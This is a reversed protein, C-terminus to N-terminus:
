DFLAGQLAHIRINRYGRQDSGSAGPINHSPSVYHIEQMLDPLKARFSSDKIPTWKKARCFEAYARQIDDTTAHGTQEKTVYLELFHRLSESEYLLDNVRTQQTQTLQLQGHAQMEARLQQAGEIAWRLIGPGEEEILINDFNPIRKAEKIREIKFPVLRRKWADRDNQMRIIPRSNGTIVVHFTGPVKFLSNSGKLEADLLDGGTIAKLSQANDDDLFSPPIDPASLVRSGILRGIEFRSDVHRLRLGGINEEGLIGACVNTLTSKGTAAEGYILTVVQPLNVPLLFGGMVKQFLDIDEGGLMGGLLDQIFRPCAAVPDYAIPIQNRSYYEPGFPLLQSTGLDFMGNKVHIILPFQPEFADVKEAISRLRGVSCRLFNDTVKQRISDAIEHGEYSEAALQYILRSIRRKINDETAPVWLGSPEQYLYFQREKAEFLLSESLYLLGAFFSENLSGVLTTKGQSFPQGYAEEAKKFPSKVWPATWGEPLVLDDLCVDRPPQECTLQYEMGEPHTGYVVAQSDRGLFDGVDNGEVDRIKGSQPVHDARVILKSGKQGRVTATGRLDPNHELFTDLAADSDLDISVHRNSPYGHLIGVNIDDEFLALYRPNAMHDITFETWKKLRPGKEGKPIPLFVIDEGLLKQLTALKAPVLTATDASQKPDM